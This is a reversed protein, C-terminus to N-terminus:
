GRRRKGTRVRVAVMFMSPVGQPIVAMFHARRNANFDNFGVGRIFITPNVAGAGTKIQLNPVQRAMDMVTQVRQEQLATGTIATVAIPVSQMSESRRSATVTVEEIQFDAVEADSAGQAWVSSQVAVASIGSLLGGFLIKKLSMAM